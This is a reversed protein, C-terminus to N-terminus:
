QWVRQSKQDLASRIAQELASIQFPKSLFVFGEDASERAASYGTMLLVPLNPYRERTTRALEIGNVGGPM